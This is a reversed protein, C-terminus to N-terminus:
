LGPGFPESLTLRALEDVDRAGYRAPSIGGEVLLKALAQVAYDLSPTM